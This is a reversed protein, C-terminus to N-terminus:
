RSGALIEDISLQYSPNNKSCKEIKSTKNKSLKEPYRRAALIRFSLGFLKLFDM